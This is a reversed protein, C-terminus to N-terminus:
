ETYLAGGGGGGGGATRGGSGCCMRVKLQDATIGTIDTKWDVVTGAPQVLQDLLM